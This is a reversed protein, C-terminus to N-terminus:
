LIQSLEYGNPVRFHGPGYERCLIAIVSPHIKAKLRRCLGLKTPDAPLYVRQLSPCSARLAMLTQRIEEETAVQRLTSIGKITRDCPRGRLDDFAAIKDKVYYRGNKLEIKGTAGLNAVAGRASCGPELLGLDQLHESIDELTCGQKFCIFDFVALIRRNISNL